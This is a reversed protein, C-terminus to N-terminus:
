GKPSTKPVDAGPGGPQSLPAAGTQKKGEAPSAPGRVEDRFERSDVTATFVVKGGPLTASPATATLEGSSLFQGSFASGDVCLKLTFDFTGKAGPSVAQRDKGPPIVVGQVPFELHYILDGFQAGGLPSARALRGTGTAGKEDVAFRGTRTFDKVLPGMDVPWTAGVPVPKRPLLNDFRFKEDGGNFEHELPLADAGTLERGGELFFHYRGERLEIRVGRGHFPLDVLRRGKKTQAKEYRRLLRAAQPGDGLDVYTERFVFTQGGRVTQDSLARGAADLVRYREVQTEDREVRVTDGAKLAKIRVSYIEPGAPRPGLALLGALTVAATCTVM